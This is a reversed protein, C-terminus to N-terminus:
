RDNITDIHHLGDAMHPTLVEALERGDVSLVLPHLPPQPPGGGFGTGATVAPAPAPAISISPRADAFTGVMNALVARIRDEEAQVGIALGVMTDSGIEM